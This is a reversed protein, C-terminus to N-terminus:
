RAGIAVYDPNISLDLMISFAEQGVNYEYYGDNNDDVLHGPNNPNTLGFKDRGKKISYIHTSKTYNFSVGLYTKFMRQWPQVPKGNPLAAAKDGQRIMWNTISKVNVPINARASISYTRGGEYFGSAIYNGLGFLNQGAHEEDFEYKYDKLKWDENYVTDK